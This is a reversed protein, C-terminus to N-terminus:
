EASGYGSFPHIEGVYCVGYRTNGTLKVPSMGEDISVSYENLLQTKPESALDDSDTIWLRTVLGTANDIEYGWLTVAHSASALTAGLNITLGAMGHEFAEVVLDSFFKLREKGVLDSGNGWLNYNNFVTIYLDYYEIVGPAVIKDYGHYINPYVETAWISKWFGGPTKPVAQTGASAYEGGNLVGEFYWPIAESMHGGLSNDWQSHFVNMLELEYAGFRSYTTVGPGDTAGAPLTKGAAKYRDQFWQIMNSSAAAWCMSIDGNDGAGKKNVDYWGSTLTVGDAFVIVKESANATVTVTNSKVDKYMAYVSYTGANGTKFTTGNNKIGNVYIECSSTVDLKSDAKVTFTVMDTGNAAMTTKSASLTLTSPLYENVTITLENSTKAGKTAYITYTGATSSSFWNSSLAEGNAYFTCANTVNNGDQTAYFDVYDLGNNTITSQSATITIDGEVVPASIAGSFVFHRTTDDSFTIDANLVMSSGSNAVHLVGSKVAKNEGGVRVSTANFYGEFNCSSHEYIGDNISNASAEKNNINFLIYDGESNEGHFTYYGNDSNSSLTTLTIDAVTTSSSGSGTQGGNEVNLKGVFGLPEAVSSQDAIVIKITYTGDDSKAVEMYGENNYGGDPTSRSINPVNTLKRIGVHTRSNWISSASVMDYTGANINTEDSYGSAVCLIFSIGNPGTVAFETAYSTNTITSQVIQTLYTDVGEISASGGSETTEAECKNEESLELKVSSSKGATMTFPSKSPTKVITHAKRGEIYVNFVLSANDLQTPFVFTSATPTTTFNHGKFDALTSPASAVANVIGGNVTDYNYCQVSMFESDNSRLAMEIAVDKSIDTGNYGAALTLTYDIKHMLHSFQLPIDASTSNIVLYEGAAYSETSEMFINDEAHRNLTITATPSEVAPYLATVKSYTGEAMLGRFTAFKGDDSIDESSEIEFTYYNTVSSTDTLAVSLKDGVEWHTINGDIGLRTDDADAIIAVEVMKAEENGNADNTHDIQEKTCAGLALLALTYITLIYHKM